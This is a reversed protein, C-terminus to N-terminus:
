KGAIKMPSLLLSGVRMNGRHDVDTGSGLIGAFMERLSGAITFEQLPKSIVGKEVWFGAAGRSYDGTVLNVGQGMVETVLIGTGLRKLLQERSEGSDSLSLNHVGGGNGTPALQLRRSAYLGLVYQKLVGDEVFAQDRSPLGDADHPASGNGGPLHAQERVMFGAPFIREGLQDRLFSANRYLSGGSIASIFHGLLGAAIEPALMVPWRGTEPVEAGLRALARERAQRGVQEPTELREARRNGDYWYDRQMGQGDEAVVACGRSHFTGTYGHLFGNSTGLVRLSSGTSVSAGESNVIRADARAEAECRLAEQIAQETDLAWPHYLDLDPPASELLSPEALGAHRDEETHRAIACAASVASRLSDPSDDSTSAMGKRQGFYVTVTVGRDRHFEVTEVEGVRVNVSLGQALNLRAEASSAGQRRAEELVFAVSDRANDLHQPGLSASEVQQDSM